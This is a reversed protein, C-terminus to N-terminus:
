LVSLIICEAVSGLPAPPRPPRRPQFRPRGGNGIRSPTCLYIFDAKKKVNKIKEKEKQKKISLQM